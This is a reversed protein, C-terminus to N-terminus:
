HHAYLTGHEDAEVSLSGYPECAASLRDGLDGLGRDWFGAGHGNRTLMFDHGICGAAWEISTQGDYEAVADGQRAAVYALCDDANALVFDTVDDRIEGEIEAPLDLGRLDESIIEADGSEDRPGYQTGLWLASEIAGRV